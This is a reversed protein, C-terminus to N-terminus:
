NRAPATRLCYHEIILRAAEAPALDTNDISLSGRGPVASFVDHRGLIERLLELTAVKGRRAREEDVVRRELSNKDCVLQVLCVRGGHPEVAACVREVFAADGPHAYVFTFIVGEIQQRAAEGIVDLRIQGVLRGFPESGFDFVTEVCAISAHNDFLKFGTERSLQKAVTLKGAGPPGYIFILRM